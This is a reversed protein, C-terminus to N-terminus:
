IFALVPKQRVFSPVSSQIEGGSFRLPLKREGFRSFCAQIHVRERLLLMFACM